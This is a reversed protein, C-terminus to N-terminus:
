RLLSNGSDVVIYRAYLLNGRHVETSRVPAMGREELKTGEQVEVPLPVAAYAFLAFM